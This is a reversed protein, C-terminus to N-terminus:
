ARRSDDAVVSEDVLKRLEPSDITMEEASPMKQAEVKAAKLMSEAIEFMAERYEDDKVICSGFTTEIRLLFRDGGAITRKPTM